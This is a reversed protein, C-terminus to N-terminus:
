VPVYFFPQNQKLKKARMLSEIFYYDAYILPVDVESGSPKNGTGHLLLFGKNKGAASRYSKTLNELLRHAASRFDYVGQSYLSLEYLASTTIAAASVDRPENPIKPANFDWYPIGDGPLNPHTLIFTAIKEAQRLYVSNRTFRYCMTFGYLGWAQGRSWASGDFAGQHTTKQTVQGTSVDFDVVHFSSNDARFHHKLTTNAHTVAIRYFSSDGTLETAHFLLELNMMNDIIVPYDWREKDDWSKIAGVVPNFRTSLTKAAQIIIDRYRPDQTLRYGNGFSNNIKFGMDHTTGNLKEKEIRATYTRALDKWSSSGTHEYLFWLQGPFFGSTWDKSAVCVLSGDKLTRPSVLEPKSSRKKAVENAMLNSQKEAATFVAPIDVNQANLWCSASLLLMSLMTKPQM